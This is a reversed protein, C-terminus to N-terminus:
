YRANYYVDELKKILLMLQISLGVLDGGSANRSTEVVIRIQESLATVVDRMDMAKNAEAM